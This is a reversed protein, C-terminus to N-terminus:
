WFKKCLDPLIQILAKKQINLAESGRKQAILREDSEM